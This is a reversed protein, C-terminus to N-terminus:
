AHNARSCYLWWCHYGYRCTVPAYESITPPVSWQRRASTARLILHRCELRVRSHPHLLFEEMAIAVDSRVTLDERFFDLGVARGGFCGLTRHAVDLAIQNKEYGVPTIGDVTRCLFGLLAGSGCGLDAVESGPTLVITSLLDSVYRYDAAEAFSATPYGNLCAADHGSLFRLNYAPGLYEDSAM